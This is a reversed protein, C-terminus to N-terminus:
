LRQRSLPISSILVSRKYEKNQHEIQEAIEDEMGIRQRIIKESFPCIGTVKFSNRMQKESVTDEALEAAALLPVFQDKEVETSSLRRKVLEGQLNRKFAANFGNDAPQLAFTTGASFFLTNIGNVLLKELTEVDLHSALRDLTLLVKRNEAYNQFVEILFNATVKWTKKTTYGQDNFIFLKPYLNRTRNNINPMESQIEHFNKGKKGLGIIWVSCVMHGAASYFPLFTIRKSSKQYTQITNKLAKKSTLFKLGKWFDKNDVGTEDCNLLLDRKEPNKTYFDLHTKAVPIFASVNQKIDDRFSKHSLGKVKDWCLVDDHRKLFGDYWGKLSREQVKEKFIDRTINLFRKRTLPVGFNAFSLAASVLIEEEDFTFVLNGHLKEFENGARNEEVFNRFWRKSTEYNYASYQPVNSLETFVKKFSLQNKHVMEACKKLFEMKVDFKVGKKKVAPRRHQTKRQTLKSKPM